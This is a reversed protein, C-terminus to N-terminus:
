RGRGKIRIARPLDDEKRAKEAASVKDAVLIMRMSDLGFPEGAWGGHVARLSFRARELLRLAESLCYVRLGPAAGAQFRGTRVDLLSREGAGPDLRRVLWDRSPWDLVLRGKPKLARHVAALCREDQEEGRGLPHHLNVAVHFEAEYGIRRLDKGIFHVWLAKDAGSRAQALRPLDSDVGLVRCGRRAIELTQSGTGCGFDLVRARDGLDAYRALGDVMSRVFVDDRSGPLYGFYERRWGERELEGQSLAGAPTM